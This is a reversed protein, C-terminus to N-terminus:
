DKRATNKSVTPKQIHCMYSYRNGSMLGRGGKGGVASWLRGATTGKSNIQPSNPRVFIFYNYSALFGMHECLDALFVESSVTTLVFVLYWSLIGLISFMALTSFDWVVGM